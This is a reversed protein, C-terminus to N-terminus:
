KLQVVSKLEEPLPFKPHKSEFHQRYTKPDPMQTRCVTSYTWLPATFFPAYTFFPANQIPPFKKPSFCSFQELHSPLCDHWSCELTTKLKRGVVIGWFHSSSCAGALLFILVCILIGLMETKSFVNKLTCRDIRTCTFIVDDYLKRPNYKAHM